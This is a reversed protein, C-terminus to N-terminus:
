APKVEHNIFNRMLKLEQIVENLTEQELYDDENTGPHDNFAANAELATNLITLRDEVRGLFSRRAM